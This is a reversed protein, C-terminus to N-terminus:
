LFSLPPPPPPPARVSPESRLPRPRPPPPAVSATRAAAAALVEPAPPTGETREHVLILHVGYRSSVPGVVRGVPSRPSFLVAELEPVLTGRTLFRGGVGDGDGGQESAGGGLEGRRAATKCRSHEAAADGFASAVAAAGGSVARLQAGLANPRGLKHAQPSTDPSVLIHAARVRQPGSAGGALLTDLQGLEFNLKAAHDAQVRPLLVGIRQEFEAIKEDMKALQQDNTEVSRARDILRTAHTYAVVADVCLAVSADTEDGKARDDFWSGCKLIEVADQVQDSKDHPAGVDVSRVAMM